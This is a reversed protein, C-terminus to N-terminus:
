ATDSGSWINDDKAKALDSDTMKFKPGNKLSAVLAPAGGGLQNAQHIQHHKQAEAQLANGYTNAHAMKKAYIMSKEQKLNPANAKASQVGKSSSTISDSAVAAKFALMGKKSEAGTQISAAKSGTQYGSKKGEFGTKVSKFISGRDGLVSLAMSALEVSPMGLKAEIMGGYLKAHNGGGSDSQLSIGANQAKSVVSEGSQPNNEFGAIKNEIAKAETVQQGAIKKAEQIEALSNDDANIGHNLAM